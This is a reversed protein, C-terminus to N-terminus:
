HSPDTQIELGAGVLHGQDIVRVRDPLCGAVLSLQTRPRGQVPSM